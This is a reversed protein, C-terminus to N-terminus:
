CFLLPESLHSFNDVVLLFDLIEGAREPLRVSWYDEANVELMRSVSRAELVCAICVGAHEWRGSMETARLLLGVIGCVSCVELLNAKSFELLELAHEPWGSLENARLLWGQHEVLPDLM